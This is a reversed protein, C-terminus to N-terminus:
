STSTGLLSQVTLAVARVVSARRASDRMIREGSPYSSGHLIVPSCACLTVITFLVDAAGARDLGPIAILLRDMQRIWWRGTCNSELAGPTGELAEWLLLRALTDDECYRDFLQGVFDSLSESGREQLPVELDRSVLEGLVAYFLGAKNGFYRYIREKSVGASRAIHDVRAGALGKESFESTAAALLLLKTRETNWAM